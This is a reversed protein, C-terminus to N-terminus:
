PFPATLVPLVALFGMGQLCLQPAAPNAGTPSDIWGGATVFAGGADFVVVERTTSATLGAPDTVTVILTYLGAAAYVHTATSSGAGASINVSSSRPMSGDGWDWTM